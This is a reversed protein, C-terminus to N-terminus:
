FFFHGKPIKHLNPFSTGEPCISAGLYVAHEEETSKTMHPLTPWSSLETSVWLLAKRSSVATESDKGVPARRFCSFIGRAYVELKKMNGKTLPHM